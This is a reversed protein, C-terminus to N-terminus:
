LVSEHTRGGVFGLDKVISFIRIGVIMSKGVIQSDAGFHSHVM